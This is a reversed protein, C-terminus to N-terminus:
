SRNSRYDRFKVRDDLGTPDVVVYSTVDSAVEPRFNEVKSFRGFIVGGVAKPPIERSHNLPPDRFKVRKNHVTLGVFRNSIVDSM